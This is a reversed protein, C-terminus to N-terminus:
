RNSTNKGQRLKQLLRLHEARRSDLKEWELGAPRLPRPSIAILRSPTVVVDVPVDHAATPIHSCIQLDDVLAAIRSEEGLSGISLLIAFELDFYGSGKGLRVGQLSVAVAGTVLMDLRGIARRTTALKKGFRRVGSSSAARRWTRPRLVQGELLYFGDRLGPTAMILRKGDALCNLRVQLLARDPTALVTAARRYAELRRLREAAKNQGPFLPIKGYPDPSIGRSELLEWVEHRLAAKRRAVAATSGNM